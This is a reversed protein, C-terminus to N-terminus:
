SQDADARSAPSAVLVRAFGIAPNLEKWKDALVGLPEGMQQEAWHARDGSSVPATMCGHNSITTGIDILLSAAHSYDSLRLVRDSCDLPLTGADRGRASWSAIAYAETKM